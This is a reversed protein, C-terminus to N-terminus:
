YLQQLRQMRQDLSVDEAGLAQVPVVGGHRDQGLHLGDCAV